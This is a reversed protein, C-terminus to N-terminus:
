IVNGFLTIKRNVSKQEKCPDGTKILYSNFCGDLYKSGLKFGKYEADLYKDWGAQYMETINKFPNSISGQEIDSIKRGQYSFIHETTEKGNWDSKYYVNQSELYGFQSYDYIVGARKLVSLVSKNTIVEGIPLSELYETVTFYM